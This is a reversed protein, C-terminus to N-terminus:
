IRKNYNPMPALYPPKMVEGEVEEVELNSCIMGVIGERDSLVKM